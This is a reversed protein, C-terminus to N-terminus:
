RKGSCMQVFLFPTMRLCTRSAPCTSSGPMATPPLVKQKGGFQEGHSETDGHHTNSKQTRQRPGIAQAKSVLVMRAADLLHLRWTGPLPGGKIWFNKHGACDLAAHRMEASSMSRSIAARGTLAWSAEDCILASISRMCSDKFFLGIELGSRGFALEM